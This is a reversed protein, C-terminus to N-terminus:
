QKVKARVNIVTGRIGGDRILLNSGLGLWFVSEDVSLGSIFQEMDKKDAPIYMREADGGVRWSNYKALNEHALVKGRLSDNSATM